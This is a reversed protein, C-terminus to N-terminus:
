AYQMIKEDLFGMGGAIVYSRVWDRFTESGDDFESFYSKLAEVELDSLEITHEIRIKM